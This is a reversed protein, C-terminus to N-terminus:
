TDSVLVLVVCAEDHSVIVDQLLASPQVSTCQKSTRLSCVGMPKVLAHGRRSDPRLPDMLDREKWENLSLHTVVTWERRTEKMENKFTALSM